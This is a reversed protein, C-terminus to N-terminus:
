RRAPKTVIADLSRLVNYAFDGHAGFRALQLAGPPHRRGLVDLYDVSILARTLSDGLCAIRTTM